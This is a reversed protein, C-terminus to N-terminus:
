NLVIFKMTFLFKTNIRTLLICSMATPDNAYGFDLGKFDRYIPIGKIKLMELIHSILDAEEWNSYILGEAIGWDGMGEISYRRPNTRKM